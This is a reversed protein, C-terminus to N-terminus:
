GARFSGQALAIDIEVAQKDGDLPAAAGGAQGDRRRDGGAAPQRVVRATVPRLTAAPPSPGREGRRDSPCGAAAGQPSITSCATWSSPSATKSPRRRWSSGCRSAATSSTGPPSAISACCSRWSWGQERGWEAPLPCIAARSTPPGREPSWHRCGTPPMPSSVPAPNSTFLLGPQLPHPHAVILHELLRQGSTDDDLDEDGGARLGPARLRHAGGAVRLAGERQQGPRQVGSLQHLARSPVSSRRSSSTATTM